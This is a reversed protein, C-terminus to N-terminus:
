SISRWCDSTCAAWSGITARKSCSASWILRARSSCGTAAAHRRWESPSQWTPRGTGIPGALVVDEAEDLYACRALELVQTKSVGALATWDLQDLTKHDPFRAERLRAAAAREARSRVEAELLERLFDEYAWGGEHAQRCLAAYQRGFAPLKLLKVHEAIVAEVAARSM